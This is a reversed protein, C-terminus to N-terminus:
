AVDLAHVIVVPSPVFVTYTHYLSAAPFVEADQESVITSSVVGGLLETIILLLAAYVCDVDTVNVNDAVSLKLPTEWIHM